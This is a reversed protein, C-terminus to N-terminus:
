ALGAHSAPEPSPLRPRQTAPLYKGAV